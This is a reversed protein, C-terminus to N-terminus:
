GNALKEIDRAVSPETNPGIVRDAQARVDAVANAVAVSQDAVAFMPLDNYNDGYVVVRGAGLKAALRRIGSAKSVGPGFVEILSQGENYIDRYYSPSLDPRSPELAHALASIGHHPGIGFVLMVPLPIDAALVRPPFNFHKLALDNREDVFEMEGPSLERDHFVELVGDQGIAYVFPSVGHSRFEEILGPLREAGITVPDVLRQRKRDWFAAGTMVILPVDTRVGRLLPEVTAPTRATAVTVMVGQASLRSITQATEPDIAVEPTLLTGDLDTVFLTKQAM